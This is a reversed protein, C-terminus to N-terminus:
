PRIFKPLWKLVNDAKDFCLEACIKNSFAENRQGAHLLKNATRMYKNGEDFFMVYLNAVVIFYWALIFIAIKFYIM